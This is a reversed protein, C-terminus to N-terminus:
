LAVQGQPSSMQATSSGVQVLVLGVRINCFFAPFTELTVLTSIRISLRLDMDVLEQTTGNLNIQGLKLESGRCDGCGFALLNGQAAKDLLM